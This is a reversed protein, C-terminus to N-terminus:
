SPVTSSGKLKPLSAPDNVLSEMNIMRCFSQWFREQAAGVFIYRDSTEFCQYPVWVHNGSGRRTIDFGSFSYGTIFANMFFIASDFFSADIYQGKGNKERMMLALLISYAAIFATGLGIIGPGVRVPPRDEEGTVMMFGSIAQIVPDYAPKQSYPGTQGFGSMSCYIIHPNITNIADYGIGMASATGPTFSELLIDAGAALKLAIELGETKQLNLALSRKNHNANLFTPIANGRRYLDGQLSEIKIVDAGAEALIFGCMPGDAAHSFDLVKLGKLPLM